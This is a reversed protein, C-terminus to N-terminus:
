HATTKGNADILTNSKSTGRYISGKEDPIREIGANIKEGDHICFLTATTNQKKLPSAYYLSDNTLMMCYNQGNVIKQKELRAIDAFFQYRGIIHAAQNRLSLKRGHQDIEWKKTNYKLEILHGEEEKQGKECVYIDYYVRKVKDESNIKDEPYELIVDYKEGFMEKIEWALTFQFDAESLFVKKENGLKKLVQELMEKM